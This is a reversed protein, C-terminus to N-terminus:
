WGAEIVAQVHTNSEFAQCPRTEFEALRHAAGRGPAGQATAVHTDGTDVALGQFGPGNRGGDSLFYRTLVSRDRKWRTASALRSTCSTISSSSSAETTEQDMIMRLYM